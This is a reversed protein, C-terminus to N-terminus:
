TLEHMACHRSCREFFSVVLTMGYKHLLWWWVWPVKNCSLYIPTLINTYFFVTLSFWSIYNVYSFWSFSIWLCETINWFRKTWDINRKAKFIHRVSFVNVLLKHCIVTLDVNMSRNHTVFNFSNKNRAGLVKLNLKRRRPRWFKKLHSSHLSLNGMYEKNSELKM